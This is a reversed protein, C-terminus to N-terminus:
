LINLERSDAKGEAQIVSVIVAIFGFIAGDNAVDFCALCDCLSYLCGEAWIAAVFNDDVM